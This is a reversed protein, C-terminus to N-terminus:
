ILVYGDKDVTNEKVMQRLDNVKWSNIEFHPKDVLKKFNGGWSIGMEAAIPALKGMDYGWDPTKGDMRVLDIALGYNHYSKYPEAYTVIKGPATRGQAYLAKQEAETRLGATVRLVIDFENECREIFETFLNRFKPHLKAVRSISIQDKM